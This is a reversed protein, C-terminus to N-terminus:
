PSNVWPSKAFPHAPNQPLCRLTMCNELDQLKLPSDDGRQRFLCRPFPAPVLSWLSLSSFPSSWSALAMTPWQTFFVMHSFCTSSWRPRKRRGRCRGGSRRNASPSQFGLCVPDRVATRFDTKQVCILHLSTLTCLVPGTGTYNLVTRIVYSLERRSWETNM